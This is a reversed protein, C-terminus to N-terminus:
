NITKVDRFVHAKDLLNALYFPNGTERKGATSYKVQLGRRGLSHSIDAMELPVKYNARDETLGQITM